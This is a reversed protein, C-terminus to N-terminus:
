PDRRNVRERATRWLPAHREGGLVAATTLVTRLLDAQGRVGIKAYISKLHYRVTNISIGAQVAFGGAGIGAVLAGVLETERPTLGFVRRLMAPPPQLLRDPDHILVVAGRAPAGSGRDDVRQPQPSVLLTYPARGHRRPARLMGGAADGHLLGNLLAGLQRAAHSSTLVIAGTREVGIGDGRGVIAQAAHNMHVVRGDAGLVIVGGPLDDLAAAFAAALGDPPPVARGIGPALRHPAAMRAEYLRDNPGAPLGIQAAPQDDRM